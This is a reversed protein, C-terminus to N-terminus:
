TERLLWRVANKQLKEYEKNWMVSIMHGPALYCLRGKGYEYAFCAEATSGADKFTKGERQESRALVYKPDKDYILYHQEDVVLFDNVGRTIPHNRDKIRVWFARIPPHDNTVAGTAERFNADGGRSIYYSQHYLLISGGNELFEKIATGQAPTLWYIWTGDMEDLPPESELPPEKARFDYGPYWFSMYGGPCAVGGTFIILMKYHQLTEANLLSPEDTFDISLGGDRVLTKGLATRIYDSNHYLDGVIAFATAHQSTGPYARATRSVGLIGAAGALGIRELSTRRTIITSM